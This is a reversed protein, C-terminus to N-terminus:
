KVTGKLEISFGYAGVEVGNDEDRKLRLEMVGKQGGSYDIFEDLNDWTLEKDLEIDVWEGTVYNMLATEFEEYYNGCNMKIMEPNYGEAEIPLEFDFYVEGSNFYCDLSGISAYGVLNESGYVSGMFHYPPLYIHQGDEFSVNGKETFLAYNQVNKVESGKEDIELMGLEASWGWVLCEGIGLQDSLTSSGHYYSNNMSFYQSMMNYKIYNDRKEEDTMEYKEEEADPPSTQAPYGYINYYSSDGYFMMLLTWSDMYGGVQMSGSPDFATLEGESTEGAELLDIRDYGGSTVVTVDTLDYGTENSVTYHASDEEAVLVRTTVGGETQLERELSFTRMGLRSLNPFTVKTQGTVDFIIQPVGIETVEEAMGYYGLDGAFPFDRSSLSIEHEGAKVAGIGVETFSKLSGEPQREIITAVSSVTSSGRRSVGVGVIVVCLMVSLVPATIWILDRKDIIKLIIYSIPGALLIFAAILILIWNIPMAELWATGRVAEQMAGGGYSYGQYGMGEIEGQLLASTGDNLAFLGSVLGKRSLVAENFAIASVFVRGDGVDYSMLVPEDDIERVVKGQPSVVGLAPIDAQDTYAVNAMEYIRKTIDPLETEGQNSLEILPSLSSLSQAAAKDGDVMLVGGNRVWQFLADQQKQNFNGVDYHNMVIMSFRELLYVDEPFSDPHLEAMSTYVTGGNKDILTDAERWYAIDAPNSGVIGVLGATSIEANKPGKAVVAGDRVLQLQVNRTYGPKFPLTFYSIGDEEVHVDLKYEISNKDYEPTVYLCLEGDFSGGDNIVQIFAPLKYGPRLYKDYDYQVELTVKPDLNEPIEYAPVRAGTEDADRLPAIGYSVSASSSAASAAASSPDEMSEEAENEDEPDSAEESAESIAESAVTEDTITGAHAAFGSVAALLLIPLFARYLLRKM